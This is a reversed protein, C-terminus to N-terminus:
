NRRFPGEYVLRQLRLPGLAARRARRRTRRRAVVARGRTGRTESGGWLPLDMGLRLTVVAKTWAEASAGGAGAVFDLLREIRAARLDTEAAGTEAARVAAGARPERGGRPSTRPRGCRRAARPVTNGAGGNTRAWCRAMASSLELWVGAELDDVERRRQQVLRAEIM